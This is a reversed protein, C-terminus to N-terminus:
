LKADYGEAIYGALVDHWDDFTYGHFVRQERNPRTVVMTKTGGDYTLWVRDAPSDLVARELVKHGRMMTDEITVVM